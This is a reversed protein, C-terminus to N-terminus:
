EQDAQAAADITKRIDKACVISKRARAGCHRAAIM